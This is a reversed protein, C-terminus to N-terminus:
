GNARRESLARLVPLFRSLENKHSIGLKERINQLHTKVTEASTHLRRGIEENTLRHAAELAVELERRTLAACQAIPDEAGAPSTLSARLSRVLTGALRPACYPEARAAARVGQCLVAGSDQWTVLVEAGQRAARVVEAEDDVVLVVGRREGGGCGGRISELEAQWERGALLTVAAGEEVVKVGPVRTLFTELVERQLAPGLVQVSIVEV